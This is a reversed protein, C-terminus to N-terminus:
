AGPVTTYEAADWGGETSPTGTIFREARPTTGATTIFRTTTIGTSDGIVGDGDLDASGVSESALDLHSIHDALGSEPIRTGGRGPSWPIATFWGRIMHPFTFWM